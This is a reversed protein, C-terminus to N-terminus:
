IPLAEVYFTTQPAVRWFPVIEKQPPSACHELQPISSGKTDPAHSGFAPGPAALRLTSHRVPRGGSMSGLRFSHSTTKKSSGSQMRPSAGFSRVAMMARAPLQSRPAAPELKRMLATPAAPLARTSNKEFVAQLPLGVSEVTKTGPCHRLSAANPEDDSVARQPVGGGGGGGGLRLAVGEVVADAGGEALWFGDALRLPVGECVCVGLELRLPVGELEAEADTEAEALAEGDADTEAEALAEGDADTEAEALAEGDADTEAEALAEGDADTEAEALTLAVGEALTLAVGEALALGEGM